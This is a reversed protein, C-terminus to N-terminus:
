SNGWRFRTTLRIQEWGPKDLQKSNSSTQRPASPSVAWELQYLSPSQTEMAASMWRMVGRWFVLRIKKNLIGAIVM